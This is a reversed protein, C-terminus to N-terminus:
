NRYLTGILASYKYNATLTKFFLRLIKQILFLSMKGTSNKGSDDLVIIFTSGHLKCSHESGEFHQRDFSTRFRTKKFMQSVFDKAIELKRFVYATLTMNKEFQEFNSKFRLFADFFQFFTKQKKFLQMQITATFHGLLLSISTM